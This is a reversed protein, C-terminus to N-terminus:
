KINSNIINFILGAPCEEGIMYISYRGPIWNETDLDTNNRLKVCFNLEFRELKKQKKRGLKKVHLVGKTWGRSESEPCGYKSMPIAFPGPPWLSPKQRPVSKCLNQNSFINLHFM